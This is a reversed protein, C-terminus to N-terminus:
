SVFRKYSENPQLFDRDRWDNRRSFIRKESLIRTIGCGLDIYARDSRMHAEVAMDSSEDVVMGADDHTGDESGVSKRRSMSGDSKDHFGKSTGNAFSGHTTQVDGRSEGRFAM